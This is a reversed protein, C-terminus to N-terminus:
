STKCLLCHGQLHPTYRGAMPLQGRVISLTMLASGQIVVHSTALYSLTLWEITMQCKFCIPFTFFSPLHTDQSRVPFKLFHNNQLTTM